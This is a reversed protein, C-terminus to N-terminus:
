AALVNGQDSPGLGSETRVRHLPTRLSEAPGVPEHVHLQARASIRDDGAARFVHRLAIRSMRTRDLPQANRLVQGAVTEATTSRYKGPVNRACAPEIWTM